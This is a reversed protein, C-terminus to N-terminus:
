RSATKTRKATIEAAAETLDTSLITVGKLAELNSQPMPREFFATVEVGDERPPAMYIEGTMRERKWLRDMAKEATEKNPFHMRATRLSAM